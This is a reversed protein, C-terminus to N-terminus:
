LFIIAPLKNVKYHCVTVGTSINNLDHNAIPGAVVKGIIYVIKTNESVTFLCINCRNMLNKM